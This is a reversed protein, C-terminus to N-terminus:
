DHVIALDLRERRCKREPVAAALQLRLQDRLVDRDAGLVGLLVPPEDQQLRQGPQQDDAEPEEYKALHLCAAALRELEALRLRSQEGTVRRLHREGVDGTRVLRLFLELFDDLEQLVRLLEAAQTPTQGLADQE